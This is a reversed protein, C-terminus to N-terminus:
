AVVVYMYIGHLQRMYARRQVQMAHAEDREDSPCMKFEKGLFQLIAPTSCLVFDGKRIIPPAIVPFGAAQGKYFPMVLDPTDADRAKDVLMQGAEAFMLRVFDGRGALKPWYYLEWTSGGDAESADNM